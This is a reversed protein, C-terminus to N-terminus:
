RPEYRDAADPRPTMSILEVQVTDMSLLDAIEAFSKGEERWDLILLHRERLFRGWDSQHHQKNGRVAGVEMQIPQLRHAMPVPLGGKSMLVMSNFTHIWLRLRAGAILRERERWDPEWETMVLGDPDRSAHLPTYEPQHEAYVIM